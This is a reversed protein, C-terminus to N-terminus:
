SQATGDTEQRRELPRDLLERVARMLDAPRFPKALFAESAKLDRQYFGANDTYGSIYLVRLGPYERSLQMALQRGGMQPMVVDTVLLDPARDLGAFARLAELGNAASLVTYGASRLAVAAMERLQAEDEVLLVTERGGRVPEEAGVSIEEEGEYRPLYIHFTAGHGPASEVTIQGGAQTVIGYCTALGLGTGKGVDKTTFFPEFIRAQTASDMGIGTDQVTLLVYEGPRVGRHEQLAYGDVIVNTVEITLVGGDPMADRANVVLNLIVQECQGPDALVPWLAEETRIMLTVDEGIVPRLIKEMNHVLQGLHVPRPKVVQRRAFALLQRTLNAAREGARQIQTVYLGIPDEPPLAEAILEAYGLVATLLNNFDHAIGGALRGISEMKQARLLQERQEELAQYLRNNEIAIAIHNAVIQLHELDVESFQKQRCVSYVGLVGVARGEVLLPVGAYSTFRYSRPLVGALRHTLPHKQVNEIAIPRKQKLLQGAIGFNAPLATNLVEEPVGAHALLTLQEGELVRIICGDMEFAQRALEALERMQQEMPVMGVMAGTVRAILDLRANSFRLAAEAHRHQQQMHAYQTAFAVYPAVEQLISREHDGWDHPAPANLTLLGCQAGPHPLLVCLQARIGRAVLCDAWVRVRPDQTVDRIAMVRYARLSRLYDPHQALDVRHGKLSAFLEPPEESHTIAMQDQADVVAYTVQYAAFYDQLRCVTGRIIEEVSVHSVIESAISALLQLRAQELRHSTRLGHQTTIDRHVILAGQRVGGETLPSVTLQVWQVPVPDSVAYELSFGQSTGELVARLGDAIEGAEKVGANCALDCMQLYNMGPELRQAIRDGSEVAQQWGANVAVVTGAPDVVALRDPLADLICRSLCLPTCPSREVFTTQQLGSPDMM